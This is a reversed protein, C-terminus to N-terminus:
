SRKAGKRGRRDNKKQNLSSMREESDKLFKVMQDEFSLNLKKPKNRAGRQQPGKQAGRQPQSPKDVAKRISLGIKGDKVEIVKVTVIDDVKLHDSVSKVFNDAIESIHVLGTVGESLEVFAGFNTIGTVKGQLKTGVEISM